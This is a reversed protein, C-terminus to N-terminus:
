SILFEFEGSRSILEGPFPSFCRSSNSQNRKSRATNSWTTSIFYYIDLSVELKRKENSICDIKKSENLKTKNAKLLTIHSKEWGTSVM